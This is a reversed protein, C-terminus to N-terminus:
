YKIWHLWVYFSLILVCFLINTFLSQAELYKWFSINNDIINTFLYKLNILSTISESLMINRWTPGMSRYCLTNVRRISWSNHGEKISIRLLLFDKVHENLSVKMSNISSLKGWLSCCLNEWEFTRLWVLRSHAQVMRSQYLQLNKIAWLRHEELRDLEEM